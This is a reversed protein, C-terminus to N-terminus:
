PPKWSPRMAASCGPTAASSDVTGFRGVAEAVVGEVSDSSAVDCALALAHGGAQVVLDATADGGAADIDLVTVQAGEEAFQLAMARGIGSGAGTVPVTAWRVEVAYGSLM